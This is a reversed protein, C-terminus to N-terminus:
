VSRVQKSIHQARVPIALRIVHLAQHEDREVEDDRESTLVREDMTTHTKQHQCQNSLRPTMIVSGAQFAFLSAFIFVSLATLHRAM